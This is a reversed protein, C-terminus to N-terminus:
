RIKVENHGCGQGSDSFSQTLVLDVVDMFRRRACQKNFRAVTDAFSQAYILSSSKIACLKGDCDSTGGV